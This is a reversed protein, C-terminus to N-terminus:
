GPLVELIRMALRILVLAGVVFFMAAIFPSTPLAINIFNMVLLVIM